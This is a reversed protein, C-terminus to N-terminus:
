YSNNFFNNFSSDKISEDNYLNILSVILNAIFNLKKLLILGELSLDLVLNFVRDNDLSNKTKKILDSEEKLNLPFINLDDIVKQILNVLNIIIINKMQESWQIKRLFNSLDDYKNNNYQDNIIIQILFDAILSYVKYLNEEQKKGIEPSEYKQEDNDIHQIIEDAFNNKNLIINLQSICLFWSKYLPLRSNLKEVLFISTSNDKICCIVNENFTSSMTNYSVSVLHFIMIKFFIEEDIKQEKLINHDIKKNHCLSVM